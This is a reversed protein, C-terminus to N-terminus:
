VMCNSPWDKAYKEFNTEVAETVFVQVVYSGTAFGMEEARKDAKILWKKIESAGATSYLKM